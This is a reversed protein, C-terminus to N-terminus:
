PQCLTRQGSKTAWGGDFELGTGFFELGARMVEKTEDSEEGGHFEGELQAHVVDGGFKQAFAGPEHGGELGFAPGHEVGFGLGFVGAANGGEEGGPFAHGFDVAFQRVGVDDGGQAGVPFALLVEAEGRMEVVGVGFEVADEFQQLARLGQGDLGM